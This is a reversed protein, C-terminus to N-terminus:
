LPGGGRRPGRVQALHRRVVFGRYAWRILIPRELPLADLVAAVDLAWADGGYSEADLPAESMGHGRLDLAVLRFDDTLDSEVQRAWCLHSQSWGHILLLPIGRTNGWERVHLRVGGGGRVTHSKM